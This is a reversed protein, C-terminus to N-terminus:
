GSRSLPRKRQPRSVGAAAAARWGQMWEDHETQMRVPYPCTRTSLGEAYADYGERYPSDSYDSM